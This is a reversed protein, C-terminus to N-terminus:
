AANTFLIGSAPAVVSAAINEVVRGTVRRNNVDKLTEVSMEEQAFIVCTSFNPADAVGVLGGPRACMFPTATPLIQSRATTAGKRTTVKRTKEVVIPFGYLKDPLGYMTNSGAMEGRVQALAEPSGKIYDVIEQSQTLRAAMASNIVVMLDDLDVAALTDDLIIEAAAQLSRKIDQRATTSQEWTGLNGALGTVDIIHSADYNAANTLATIALQTRATMAQRAKISAHQALINWSAQDVTLDGLQFPYALRETRFPFWEFGETGDVGTPAEQGDPWIFNRLDTYVIRGAEEITMRLFYGAVAKVPVIQVYKNVAFKAINRAFDVVMKNSADHDRIFTNYASPYAAPM